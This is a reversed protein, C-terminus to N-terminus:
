IFICVFTCCATHVHLTCVSGPGTLSVCIRMLPIRTGLCNSKINMKCFCVFTLILSYSVFITFVSITFVSVDHLIWETYLINIKICDCDDHSHWRYWLSCETAKDIYIFIHTQYQKTQCNSDASDLARINIKFYVLGHYLLVSFWRSSSKAQGQFFPKLRFWAEAELWRKFLFCIKFFRVKSVAVKLDNVRSYKM